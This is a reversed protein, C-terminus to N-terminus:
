NILLNNVSLIIIATATETETTELPINTKFSYKVLITKEYYIKNCPDNKNMKIVDKIAYVPKLCHDIKLIEWM